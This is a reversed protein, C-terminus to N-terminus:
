RAAQQSPARQLIIENSPKTVTNAVVELTVWMNSIPGSSDPQPKVILHASGDNRPNFAGMSV